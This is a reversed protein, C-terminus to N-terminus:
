HWWHDDLTSVTLSFQEYHVHVHVYLTTLIEAQNRDIGQRKRRNCSYIRQAQSMVDDSCMKQEAALEDTIEAPMM